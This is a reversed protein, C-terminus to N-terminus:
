RIAWLLAAGAGLLACVVIAWAVFRDEKERAAQAKHPAELLEERARSVSGRLSEPEPSESLDPAPHASGEYDSKRMSQDPKTTQLPGLWVMVAFVAILCASVAAWDWANM